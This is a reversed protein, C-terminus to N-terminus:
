VDFHLPLLLIKNKSKRKKRTKREFEKLRLYVNRQVIKDNKMQHIIAGDTHGNLQYVM